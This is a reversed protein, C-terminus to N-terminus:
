EKSQDSVSVWIWPTADSLAHQLVVQGLATVIVPGGPETLDISITTEYTKASLISVPVELVESFEAPNCIIGFARPEYSAIPRTIMTESGKFNDDPEQRQERFFPRNFSKHHRWGDRHHSGHPNWKKWKGGTRGTPILYYIDGRADRKIRLWLFLDRGDRIAVAFIREM